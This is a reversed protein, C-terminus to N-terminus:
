PEALHAPLRRAARIVLAGAGLLLVGATLLGHCILGTSVATEWGVGAASMAAAWAAQPPGLGAITPIPLAFALNSAAGAMAAVLLPIDAVATSVLFAVAVHGVWIGLTLALALGRRGFPRIMAAGFTLQDFLPLLRPTWQLLRRLPDLTELVLVPLAAAALAAGGVVAASWGTAAPNLLLAAAALLIAGVACLDLLRALVLIGAARGYATGFARRMMVPFSLEGLKFPLVFNFFVLRVAVGFMAPSPLKARGTALLTFRWARFAQIVPVLAFALALRGGWARDLADALAATAADSLLWWLVLGSIALALLTSALRRM